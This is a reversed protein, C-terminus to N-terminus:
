SEMTPLIKFLMFALLIVILGLGIYVITPNPGAIKGLRANVSKLVNMLDDSVTALAKMVSSRMLSGIVAPDAIMERTPGSALGHVMKDIEVKTKSDSKKSLEQIFKIVDPSAIKERHPSRNLMPEWDGENVIAMRITKQLFAPVFGVGPYLVDITALENVPWTRVSDDEPNTITVTGGQKPSLKFAGGGGKQAVLVRINETCTKAWRWQFFFIMLVFPIGLFLAARGLSPLLDITM